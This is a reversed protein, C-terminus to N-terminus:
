AVSAWQKGTRIRCVQAGSIGYARGLVAQPLKSARIARVDDDSLKASGHASGAFIVQRGKRDRDSSNDAPTGVFLHWPNV